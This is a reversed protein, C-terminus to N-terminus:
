RLRSPGINVFRTAVLSMMPFTVTKITDLLYTHKILVEDSSISLPLVFNHM